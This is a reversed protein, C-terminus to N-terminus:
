LLIFDCGKHRYGKIILGRRKTKDLVPLTANDLVKDELVAMISHVHLCHFVNRKFLKFGFNCSNECMPM